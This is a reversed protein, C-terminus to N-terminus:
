FPQGNEANEILRGSGQLLGNGQLVVIKEITGVTKQKIEKREV